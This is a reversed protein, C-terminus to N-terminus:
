VQQGGVWVGLYQCAAGIPSHFHIQAMGACADGDRHVTQRFEAGQSSGIPEYFEARAQIQRLDFPAQAILDREQRGPKYV